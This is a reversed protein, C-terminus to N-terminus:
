NEGEIVSEFKGETVVFRDDSAKSATFSFEGSVKKGNIATLRFSLDKIDTRIYAKTEGDTKKFLTAACNSCPQNVVLTPPFSVSISIGDSNEGLVTNTKTFDDYLGPEQGISKFAKGDIVASMSNGGAKEATEPNSNAAEMKSSSSNCSFILAMASLFIINRM